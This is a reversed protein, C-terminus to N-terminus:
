SNEDSQGRIADACAKTARDYSKAEEDHPDNVYMEEAECLEADKARQWETAKLILFARLTPIEGAFETAHYAEAWAVAHEEAQSHNM